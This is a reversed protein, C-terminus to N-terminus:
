RRAGPMAFDAFAEDPAPAEADTFTQLSGDFLTLLDRREGHRHKACRWRVPVLGNEDGQEDAEGVLLIDADFDAQGTNRTLSGARSSSDVAKAVSSLLVVACGHTLSMARLGALVAEAEHRSDVAGAAKMIQLYDCVALKAGSAAVAAEIRDVTLTPPVIVLREGIQRQLEDAVAQAVATRRGAGRMTAPSMGLLASGVAISRRALAELSMEGLGWVARLDPDGLLAGITAQLALASKGTGPRGLLIVLQGLPLGGPLEGAALSDLPRFGTCIVPVREHARWEGLADGLTPAPAEPEPEAACRAVAIRLLEAELQELGWRGFRDVARRAYAARDDARSLDLTDIDITTGTDIGTAIIIARGGTGVPQWELRCPERHEASPRRRSPM